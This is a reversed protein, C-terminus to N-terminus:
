HNVMPLMYDIVDLLRDDNSDVMGKLRDVTAHYFDCMNWKKPRKLYSKGLKLGM